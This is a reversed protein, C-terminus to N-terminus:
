TYHKIVAAQTISNGYIIKIRLLTGKEILKKIFNTYKRRFNIFFFFIIEFVAFILFIRM